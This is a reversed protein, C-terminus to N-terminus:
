GETGIWDEFYTANEAIGAQAGKRVYLDRLFAVIEEDAASKMQPGPDSMFRLMFRLYCQFGVREQNLWEAGMNLFPRNQNWDDESQAGIGDFVMVMHLFMFDVPTRPPMAMLDHLTKGFQEIAEKTTQETFIDILANSMEEGYVQRINDYARHFRLFTLL